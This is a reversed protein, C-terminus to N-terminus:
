EKALKIFHTNLFYVQDMPHIQTSLWPIKTVGHVTAGGPEEKWPIKWALISSRTAMEEELPDERVWPDFRCRKCWGANVPPNKVASSSPFVLFSNLWGVSAAWQQLHEQYSVDLYNFDKVPNFLDRTCLHEIFLLILLYYIKRKSGKGKFLDKQKTQVLLIM